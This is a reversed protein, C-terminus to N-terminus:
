CSIGRGSRLPAIRASGSTRRMRARRWSVRTSRFGWSVALPVQRPDRRSTRAPCSGAEERRADQGPLAQRVLRRASEAERPERVPPRAEARRESRGSQSCARKPTNRRLRSERLVPLPGASRGRQRSSGSGRRSPGRREHDAARGRLSVHQVGATGRGASRTTRPTASKARPWGTTRASPSPVTSAIRVSTNM